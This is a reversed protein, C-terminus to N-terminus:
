QASPWADHLEDLDIDVEYPVHQALIQEITTHEGVRLRGYDTRQISAFYDHFKFGDGIVDDSFEVWTGPIGYADACILGHLSSSIVHRCQKIARIFDCRGTQVDIISVSEDQSYRRLWPHEKDVLHPVIGVEYKVEVDPDYFRPMLLAPDGYIEPVDIGQACLVDRTLPGRVACVMKPMEPIPLEPSMCGAGWIVTNSDCRHIISGVAMYKQVSPDRSFWVRMGSMARIIFPNLADGWNNCRHWYAHVARLGLVQYLREHLQEGHVRLAPIRPSIRESYFRTQKLSRLLGIRTAGKRCLMAGAGSPQVATSVRNEGSASRAWANGLSDGSNM